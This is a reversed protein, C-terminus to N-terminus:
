DKINVGGLKNAWNEPFHSYYWKKDKKKIRRYWFLCISPLSIILHFIVGLICSQKSHGTEHKLIEEDVTSNNVFIIPGCSFCATGFLGRHNVKWVSIHNYPNTYVEYNCVLLLVILGTLIQPLQWIGLLINIIINKDKFM